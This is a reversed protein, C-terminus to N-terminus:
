NEEGAKLEMGRVACGQSHGGEERERRSGKGRGKLEMM